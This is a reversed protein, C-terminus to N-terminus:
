GFVNNVSSRMTASFERNLATRVGLVAANELDVLQAVLTTTGLDIAIGLGSRAAFAFASQDSLIASEWQGVELTVDGLVAARCALRWGAALERPSLIGASAPATLDGELIRVRCRKCHSEGGCPFEVGFAFLLDRLPTGPEAPISEGLPELRVLM